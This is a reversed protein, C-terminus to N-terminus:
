NQPRDASFKKREEDRVRLWNWGRISLLDALIDFHVPHRLKGQRKVLAALVMRWFRADFNARLLDGLVRADYIHTENSFVFLSAYKLSIVMLKLSSIAM